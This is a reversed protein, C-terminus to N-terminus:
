PIQLVTMCTCVNYENEISNMNCVLCIREERPTNEFRGIEININVYWM